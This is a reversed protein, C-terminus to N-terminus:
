AAMELRGTRTKANYYFRVLKGELAKVSVYADIIFSHGSGDEHKLGVIKAEFKGRTLSM